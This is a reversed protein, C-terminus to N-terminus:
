EKITKLAKDKLESRKRESEDLERERDNLHAGLQELEMKSDRLQKVTVELKTALKKKQEESEDYKRLINQMQGILREQQEERRDVDENLMELNAILDRSDIRDGGSDYLDVGDRSPQHLTRGLEFNVGRDRQMQDLNRRINEVDGGAATSRLGKGSTDYAGLSSTRRLGKKGGIVAPGSAGLSQRRQSTGGSIRSIQQRVHEKEQESQAVKLILVM